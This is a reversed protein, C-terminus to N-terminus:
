NIAGLRGQVAATIAAVALTALVVIGGTIVVQELTVSGRERDAALRANASAILDVGLTHVTAFLFLMATVGQSSPSASDHYFTGVRGRTHGANSMQPSVYRDDAIMSLHPSRRAGQSSCGPGAM